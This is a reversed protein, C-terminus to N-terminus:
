YIAGDAVVLLLMPLLKSTLSSSIRICYFSLSSYSCSVFISLSLVLRRSSTMLSSSFHLLSAVSLSSAVM